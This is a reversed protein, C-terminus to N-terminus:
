ILERLRDVIKDAEMKEGQVLLARIVKSKSIPKGVKESVRRRISQLREEDTADLRVSTTKTSHKEETNAKTM